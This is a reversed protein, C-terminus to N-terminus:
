CRIRPAVEFDGGSESSQIALSVVFDTQDFHWQLLDAEGMVAINLAGLPDAYRYLPGRELVASIFEIMPQWEYLQRLPSNLPFQDYAIVGVSFAGLHRRPHESPLTADPLELYPTGKGASRYAQPALARADEALRALGDRHVFGSLESAGMLHLQARAVSLVRQAEPSQLDLLPYRDLDVLEHPAWPRAGFRAFSPPATPSSLSM